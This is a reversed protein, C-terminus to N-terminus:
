KVLGKRSVCVCLFASLVKELLSISFNMYNQCPSSFKHFNMDASTEGFKANSYNYYDSM